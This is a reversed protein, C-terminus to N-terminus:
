EAPAVQTETVYYMGADNPSAYLRENIFIQIASPNGMTVWYRKAGQATTEEGARLV